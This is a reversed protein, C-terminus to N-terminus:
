CGEGVFRPGRLVPPCPLEASGFEGTLSAQRDEGDADEPELYYYRGVMEQWTQLDPVVLRRVSLKKTRIRGQEGDAAPAVDAVRISTEQEQFGISRLARAITTSKAGIARAVMRAEVAQLEGTRYYKAFKPDDMLHDDGTALALALAFCMGEWSAARQRRLEQQRAHLYAAFRAAGDPFLQLVLSLPRSMQKLRPEIPMSAYDLVVRGDVAPWHHLVFRAVQGRISEVAAGYETDLEVPIDRRRTEHPSYSIVRGETANDGFPERMAILKPGFPDFFEQRRPDNKNALIFYQGAEFGLNLYKILPNEAGGAIDSEDIRLTGHWRENFRMIGAHSSAGAAAIPYFCLDAIARLIRSKGKGTDALLRLYPATTCKTHFWTFLAYYIALERFGGPIDVYRVLHRDLLAYLAAPELLPAGELAERGPLGVISVLGGTDPHRDLERPVVRTGDPRTVVPEFQVAGADDLSAFFYRNRADVVDLYLRGDLEFYALTRTEGGAEERSERPERPETGGARQRLEPWRQRGGGCSDHKCGAHIAGNAFQIAYAGDAHAGSFPCQALTYLTGGQWPREGAVAIGHAGLWAGLDFGNPRRSPAAAGPAPPEPSPRTAALAQLLEVPVVGPEYPKAIVVSRRHPRERTSDGKRSVTGYVKWIRAANFNATDVKVQDTSFRADLAGLVDQVLATSAEDNPLDVRFLLHGGNGSDAVVPAPWGLGDLYERIARTLECAARHESETSSVGSPRVPDIDIPLWRRRAIDADATTADRRGLRPAMRNARRALLAPDVPNLTVYIGSYGPLTDFHEAWEALKGVLDFYGSAIRGDSGIVRLEAVAGPEVLLELAELVPRYPQDNADGIV